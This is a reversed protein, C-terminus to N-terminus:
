RSIEDDLDEEDEVTIVVKTRMDLFRTRAEFLEEPTVELAEAEAPYRDVIPVAGGEATEVYRSMAGTETDTGIIDVKGYGQRVHDMSERFWDSEDDISGDDSARARIRVLEAHLGELLDQIKQRGTWSPNPLELVTSFTSVRSVSSRWQAFTQRYRCPTIKWRYTEQSNLLAQLNSTVTNERVEGPILQFSVLRHEVDVLFPVVVGSSAEGRIFEKNRDDWDVTSFQGEKVYGIRGHWLGARIQSARSLRWTRSYRTVETGPRWSEQLTRSYYDAPAHEGLGEQVLEAHSIQFERTM